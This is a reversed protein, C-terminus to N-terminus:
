GAGNPGVVGVLLGKPISFDIGWIVPRKHYAVSFDHVEIAPPVNQGSRSSSPIMPRKLGGEQRFSDCGSIVIIAKVNAIAPKSIRLRGRTSDTRVDSKSRRFSPTSM